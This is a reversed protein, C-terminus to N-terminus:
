SLLLTDGNGTRQHAGPISWWCYQDEVVAGAGDVDFGIGADLRCQYLLVSALSAEDDSLTDTGHQGGVLDKDQVIATDDGFACMLCQHVGTRDVAFDVFRLHLMSCDCM